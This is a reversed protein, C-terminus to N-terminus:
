RPIIWMGPYPLTHCMLTFQKLLKLQLQILSMLCIIITPSSLYEDKGILQALVLVLVFLRSLYESYQYRYLRYQYRSQNFNSLRYPSQYQNSHSNLQYLSYDTDIMPIRGILRKKLMIPIWASLIISIQIPKINQLSCSLNTSLVISFNHKDRFLIQM